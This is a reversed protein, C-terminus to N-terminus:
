RSACSRRVPCDAYRRRQAGARFGRLNSSGGLISKFYAPAPESMDERGARVALVTGRYIGIYGTADLETRVAPSDSFRIRDIAARAYIANHPLLPDVRTDLILDAGISKANQEDGAADIVALRGRQGRSRSADAAMRSQGVRAKPGRRQRLVSADPASRARGDPDPPRVTLFVGKSIGSGCTQRRGLEDPRDCAAHYQQIRHGCFLAGYTLGYGDEADLIPVFM